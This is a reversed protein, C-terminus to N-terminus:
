IYVGKQSKTTKLIIDRNNFPDEIILKAYKYKPNKSNKAKTNGDNNNNNNSTTIINSNDSHVNRIHLFSPSKFNFINFYKEVMFFIM